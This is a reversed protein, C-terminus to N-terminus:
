QVKLNGNGTDVFALPKSKLKALDWQVHGVIMNLRLFGEKAHWVSYFCAGLCLDDAYNFMFNRHVILCTIVLM